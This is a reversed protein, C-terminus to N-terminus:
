SEKNNPSTTPSPSPTTTSTPSPSPSPKPTPTKAVTVRLTTGKVIKTGATRSQSIITGAADAYSEQETVELTLGYKDCFAQADALKWGEGAMDPFKDVIDPTYLTLSEGKKLKKGPEVSQGIVEDTDYDKDTNEPEKKEIHELATIMWDEQRIPNWLGQM